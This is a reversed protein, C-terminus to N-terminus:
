TQKQLDKIGEASFLFFPIALDGRLRNWDGLGENQLSVPCTRSSWLM